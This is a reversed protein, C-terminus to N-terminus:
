PTGLFNFLVNGLIYVYRNRGVFVLFIKWKGGLRYEVMQNVDMGFMSQNM